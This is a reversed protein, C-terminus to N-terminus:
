FSFGGWLESWEDFAGEDPRADLATCASAAGAAEPAIPVVDRVQPSAAATDSADPAEKAHRRALVMWRNRLANDSRHFFFKGITNWKPGLQRYKQELIADEDPTWEDKRLDPNLYNNYRERCQRANRTGIVLSINIWDKDGLRRVLELLIRDEEATFKNKLPGVQSVSKKSVSRASRSHVPSVADQDSDPHSFMATIHTQGGSLKWATLQCLLSGLTDLAKSM